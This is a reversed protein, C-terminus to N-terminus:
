LEIIKANALRREKRVEAEKSILFKRVARWRLEWRIRPDPMNPATSVWIRKMEEQIEPKKIIDPNAKYHTSRRVKTTQPRELSFLVPHHDSLHVAADHLIEGHFTVWDADGSFYVRNLRAQELRGGALRQRTFRPGEKKCNEGSKGKQNGKKSVASQAKPAAEGDSDSSPRLSQQESISLKPPSNERDRKRKDKAADMPLPTSDVTALTTQGEDQVSLSTNPLNGATVTAAREKQSQPEQVQEGENDDENSTDQLTQFQNSTNIGQDGKSPLRDADRSTKKNQVAIFGDSDM